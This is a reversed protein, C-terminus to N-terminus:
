RPAGGFRRAARALVAESTIAGRMLDEEAVARYARTLQM